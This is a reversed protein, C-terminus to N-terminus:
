EDYTQVFDSILSVMFIGKLPPQEQPAIRYSDVASGIM